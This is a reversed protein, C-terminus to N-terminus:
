HLRHLKRGSVWKGAYEAIIDNKQVKDDVYLGRGVIGDKVCTIPLIRLMDQYLCLERNTANKKNLMSHIKFLGNRPARTYNGGGIPFM